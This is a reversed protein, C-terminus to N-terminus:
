RQGADGRLQCGSPLPTHVTVMLTNLEWNHRLLDTPYQNAVAQFSPDAFSAYSWNPTGMTTALGFEAGTVIQKTVTGLSIQVIGAQAAPGTSASVIPSVPLTSIMM